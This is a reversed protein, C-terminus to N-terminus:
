PPPAAPPAAGDGPTGDIFERRGNNLIIVREREIDLVEAGQIRTAWWTRRRSSRAMDQISAISWEPLRRRAHGAAERAALHAGAGARRDRHRGPEKVEAREAASHRHAQSRQEGDLGALAVVAAAARERPVEAAAAPTVLSEIFANGTRAVMLMVGFIFLLHVIWFHRKFLFEM